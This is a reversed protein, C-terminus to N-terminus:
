AEDCIKLIAQHLSDLDSFGIQSEVFGNSSKNRYNLLQSRADSIWAVLSNPRQEFIIELSESTAPVATPQSILLFVDPNQLRSSNFYDALSGFVGYEYAGPWASRILAEYIGAPAIIVVSKLIM